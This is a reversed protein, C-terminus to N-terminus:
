PIANHITYNGQVVSVNFFLQPCTTPPTDTLPFGAIRDSAGTVDGDVVSWLQGKGVFAPTVANVIVVGVTAENGFPGYVSLCTVDAEYRGPATDNGMDSILKGGAGTGDADALANIHVQISPFPPDAGLHRGTGTVSDNAAESAPATAALLLGALISVAFLKRM